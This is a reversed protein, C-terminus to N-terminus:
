ACVESKQNTNFNKISITLQFFNGFKEGIEKANLPDSAIEAFMEDLGAPRVTCIRM